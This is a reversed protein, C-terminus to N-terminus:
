KMVLPLYLPNPLSLMIRGYGFRSNKPDALTGGCAGGDGRKLASSQLYSRVQAQTYAPFRSWATAAMGAVHPSSASTGWFGTGTPYAVGNSAGYTVGSVGDPAVVDPKNVTTGPNGGGSANRPGFSSFPELGFFPSVSDASWFTAGATMASDGDGPILLSNCGNVHWFLNQGGSNNLSHLQMWHGFNNTCAGGGIYREIVLGYMYPGGAPVTYQIAEIPRAATTCQDDISSAVQTWTSGTWRLLYLDYDIHSQNGTRAANWDNWELFSRVISGSAFNWLHTTDPGFGQINGAGFAVTNGAAYQTSIGSWHAKQQNGASNVWLVGSSQANDILTNIPGTGDYPGANVYGASMTAVRRGSVNNRYDSIANALEVDTGWAYLYLRSGPAMDYVIEACATGHVYGPTDPSFNYTASFDMLVLNGGGPLDGSAQVSAWGTFGFDYIAVNVGSGTYGASHWASTWTLAVGESTRSGALPSEPEIVPQAPKLERGPAPLDTTTAPYPLRMWSVGPIQALTALAEIPALVQVLNEHATEYTAGTAAIADALVSNIAVQPAHEITVRRGDELTTVEAVTKGAPRAEPDVAMELIVRATNATLDVNPDGSFTALRSADDEQYAASLQALASEIGAPADKSRTLEIDHVSEAGAPLPIVDQPLPGEDALAIGAQPLALLAVFLLLSLLRHLSLLRSPLRM